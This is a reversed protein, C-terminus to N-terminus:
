DWGCLPPLSMFMADINGGTNLGFKIGRDYVLNFEAYRTRKKFQAALDSADYPTLYRRRAIESYGKLFALGVDKTFQFLDEFNDGNGTIGADDTEIFRYDYFIGGVGRTEKRHKIYFYEDCWTKFADYYTLDHADCAGKMHRHFSLTDEKVPIAPTLDAGGGFWQKNSTTIFRTNMHVIPIHPNRPHFVLSIGTATFTTDEDCGPITKAFEKPFHGKVDSFAVGAKEFVTGGRLIAMRGGGFDGEVDNEKRQWKTIRFTQPIYDPHDVEGDIHEMEATIIDQLERFWAATREQYTGLIDKPPVSLTNSALIM